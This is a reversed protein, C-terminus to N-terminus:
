YTNNHLKEIRSQIKLKLSYPSAVHVHEGYSLIVQELEINPVVNIRFEVTNDKYCHKQTPHLPKTIVYPAIEISFNLIVEEISVGTPRTVGIMDYFYEDWDIETPIYKENTETAHEIRDLALNWTEIQNDRNRGFAFWRNNYQKLYYPHFLVKYSERSKFDKYDIELVREHIIANFVTIIHNYGKLDINSDFGIVEKSGTKLGLKSELLPIMENIWEFQPAGRIRLLLHVASRIVELESRNLPQNNISFKPDEYRYYVKKGYRHRAIPASWGQDSEMYKIDDFLQRRQIGANGPDFEKLDSNCEELLDEWFYM